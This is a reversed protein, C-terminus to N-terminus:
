RADRAPKVDSGGQGAKGGAADRVAPARPGLDVQVTRVAAGPRVRDRGEVILRDGPALGRTVVWDAGIARDLDIMRLEVKGAANVVLALPEGKPNRTIGQQPALIARENQGEEVIARVYMGPLLTREPNPFVMRLIVSGTTQDVSVDRFQLAGEHPYPTGDELLLKVKRAGSTGRTFQGREAGRTLRLIDASAQTVDVYIPDLQQVVALPTAQYATVMAGVTVSSRGIRGSIPAKVPTYGLNVRASEVAAKAALVSAQARALNSAADDYEQEGVAHIAVLGKLREARSRVAPVNAEAVALSAAAQDYAAKYPAPDIQYLVAGAQVDAGEVFARRQILGNVQPRVDAVLYAATRGPLETTLVVRGSRVAAVGVEPAPPAAPGPAGKRCGAGATVLVAAVAVLAAPRLRRRGGTSMSLAVPRNM